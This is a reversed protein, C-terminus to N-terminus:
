ELRVMVVLEMLVELIVDEIVAERDRVSQDTARGDVCRRVLEADVHEVAQVLEGTQGLHEQLVALYERRQLQHRVITGRDEVGPSQERSVKELHRDVTSAVHHEVMRELEELLSVDHQSRVRAEQRSVPTVLEHVPELRQEAAAAPWCRVFWRSLLKEVDTIIITVIFTLACSL